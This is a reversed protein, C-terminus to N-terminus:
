QQLGKTVWYEVFKVVDEDFQFNVPNHTDKCICDSPVHFDFEHENVQTLLKCMRSIVEERSLLKSM